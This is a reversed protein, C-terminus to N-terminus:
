NIQTEPLLYVKKHSSSLANLVPCLLHKREVTSIFFKM